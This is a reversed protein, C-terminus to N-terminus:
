IICHNESNNEKGDESDEYFTEYIPSDEIRGLICSHKTIKKYYPM